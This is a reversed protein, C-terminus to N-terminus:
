RSSARVLSGKCSGKAHGIRGMGHALLRHLASPVWRNVGRGQRDTLRRGRRAHALASNAAGDAPTIKGCDFVGADKANCGVIKCPVPRAVRAKDSWRWLQQSEDRGGRRSGAAGARKWRRERREDAAGSLNSLDPLQQLLGIDTQEREGAGAANALGSKGQRARVLQALGEGIADGEDRERRDPIRAQDVPRDGLRQPTCSDAM